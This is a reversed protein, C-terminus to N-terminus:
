RGAIPGFPRTCTVTLPRPRNPVIPGVTMQRDIQRSVTPPTIGLAGCHSRIPCAHPSCHRPRNPVIPGGTMQRDNSGQSAFCRGRDEVLIMRADPCSICRLVEGDHPMKIQQSEGPVHRASDATPLLYHYPVVVLHLRQEPRGSGRFCPRVISVCPTPPGTRSLFPDPAAASECGKYRWVFALLRPSWESQSSAAGM